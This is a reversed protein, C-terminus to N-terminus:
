SSEKAFFAAAKKLIEREMELVKIRKRLERNEAELDPQESETKKTSSEKAAKVWNRVASETLELDHAIQGISKGSTEVLQVVEARYEDTFARRKRRKKTVPVGM